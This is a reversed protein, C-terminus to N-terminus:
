CFQLGWLVPLHLCSVFDEVRASLDPFGPGQDSSSGQWEPLCLTVSLGVWSGPDTEWLGGRGAGDPGGSHDEPFAAQVKPAGEPFRGSTGVASGSVQSWM